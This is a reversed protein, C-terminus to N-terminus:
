GRPGSGAREHQGYPEAARTPQLPKNPLRLLHAFADAHKLWVVLERTAGRGDFFVIRVRQRWFADEVQVSVVCDLPVDHELGYIEPLFMLNFPFWPRVILRQQHVAVVLCGSAGGLRRWWNDAIHGSAGREQFEADRIGFFFVPKGLWHRYAISLAIVIPLWIVALATHAWSPQPSM